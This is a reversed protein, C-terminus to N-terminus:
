QTHWGWFSPVAGGWVGWGEWADELMGDAAEELYRNITPKITFCHGGLALANDRGRKKKKKDSLKVGWVFLCCGGMREAGAASGRWM